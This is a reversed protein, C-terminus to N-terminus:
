PLLLLIHLLFFSYDGYWFGFPHLSNNKEILFCDEIYPQHQCELAIHYHPTLGKQSVMNTPLNTIPVDKVQIIFIKKTNIQILSRTNWRWVFPQNDEFFFNDNPSHTFLHSSISPILGNYRITWSFVRCLTVILLYFVNFDFGFCIFIFISSIDYLYIIM